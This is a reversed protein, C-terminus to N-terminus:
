DTHSGPRQRRVPAACALTRWPLRSPVVLAARRMGARSRAGVERSTSGGIYAMLGLSLFGFPRTFYALQQGAAGGVAAATGSDSSASAAEMSRGSISNSPTAYSAKALQM